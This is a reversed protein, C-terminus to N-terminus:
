RGVVIRAEAKAGITEVGAEDFRAFAGLEEEALEGLGIWGEGFIRAERHEGTNAIGLLWSSSFGFGGFDVDVAFEVTVGGGSQFKGGAGV